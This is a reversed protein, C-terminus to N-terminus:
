EGYFTGALLPNMAGFIPVTDVRMYNENKDGSSYDVFRMQLGYKTAFKTDWGRLRKQKLSSVSFASGHYFLNPVYTSGATGSIITVADDEALAASITNYQGGSEFFAPGNLVVTCLGSGDSDADANVTGTYALGAGGEGAAQDRSKLNNFYKSAIQVKDGAKVFDTTSVDCGKIVITTQFTDKGSVYTQTPAANLQLGDDWNGVTHSKLLASEYARINGNMGPIQAREWASTVYEKNYAGKISDALNRTGYPNIQAYIQGGPFGLSRTYSNIQSMDSWSNIETGATGLQHSGNNKIYENLNTEVAVALESAVGSIIQDFQDLENAEELAEWELAITEHNQVVAAARGSIIQNKSEASIDGTATSVAVWKHPRKIYVTDGTSADHQNEIPAYGVTKLSVVESDFAPLFSRVTKTQLNSSLNNSLAM